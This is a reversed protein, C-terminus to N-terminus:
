IIDGVATEEAAEVAAIADAVQKVAEKESLAGALRVETSAIVGHMSAAELVEDLHASQGYGRGIDVPHALWSMIHYWRFTAPLAVLAAALPLNLPEMARKAVMRTLAAGGQPTNSRMASSSYLEVRYGAQELADTLAVAAVGSWVLADAGIHCNQGVDADVSIVRSARARQPPANRWARDLMGGYVKTMDIENGQDMWKLRRRPAMPVPILDAIREVMAAVKDTGDPWGAELLKALTANDAVEGWYGKHGTILRGAWRANAPTAYRGVEAPDLLHLDEPGLETVLTPGHLVEPLGTNKPRLTYGRDFTNHYIM